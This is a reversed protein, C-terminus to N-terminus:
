AAGRERGSSPPAMLARLAEEARQLRSTVTKEAVGLEAAAQAHTKSELIVKRVVAQQGPPLEPLFRQVAQRYAVARDVDLASSPLISGSSPLAVTEPARRRDRAQHLLKGRAVADLNSRLSPWGGSAVVQVFLGCFVEQLVDKVQQEPVSWRRARRQIKRYQAAMFRPFVVRRFRDRRGADLATRCAEIEACAAEYEADPSGESGAATTVERKVDPEKRFAAARGRATTPHLNPL